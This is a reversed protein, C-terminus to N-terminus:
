AKGKEKETRLPLIIFIGYFFLLLNLGGHLNFLSDILMASGSISLFAVSLQNRRVGQVLPYIFLGALALLGAIGLETTISLYQNHIMIFNEPNLAPNHVKYLSILEAELDAPGVGFVPSKRILRFANEWAIFRQTISKYNPNAGSLYTNVDAKTSAVRMRVSSFSMYAIVPIFLMLLLVGTGFLYKRRIIILRGLEILLGFYLVLIGTRYALIHLGSFIVFMATALFIKEFRNFHLSKNRLLSLASFFAFASIIGFHIHFMGTIVPINKSQSILHDHEGSNGFYNILTGAMVFSTCTVLFYLFANIKRESWLSTLAFALPLILMPLKRLLESAWGSKNETFFYSIIYLFYIFFWLLVPVLTKIRLFRSKVEASFLAGFLMIAPGISLLAHSAFLGILSVLTGTFFLYSSITERNINRTDVKAM